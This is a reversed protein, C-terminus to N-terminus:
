CRDIRQGKVVEIKANVGDDAALTVIQFRVLPTFPQGLLVCTGVGQIPLHTPPSPHRDAAGNKCHIQFLVLAKKQPRSDLIACRRHFVALLHKANNATMLLFDHCEHSMVM